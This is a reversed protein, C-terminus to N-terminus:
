VIKEKVERVKKFFTFSKMERRKEVRANEKFDVSFEFFPFRAGCKGGEFGERTFQNGFVDGEIAKMLEFVCFVRFSKMLEKREAM